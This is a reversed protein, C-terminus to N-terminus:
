DTDSPAEVAEDPHKERPLRRLNLWVDAFGTLSVLPLLMETVGLVVYGLSRAPRGIKAREYLAAFVAVGQLFFV